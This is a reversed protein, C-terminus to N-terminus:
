ILLYGMRRAWRHCPTYICQYCFYFEMYGVLAMYSKSSHNLFLFYSNSHVTMHLMIYHTYRAQQDALHAGRAVASAPWGGRVGRRRWSWPGRDRLFSCSRCSSRPRTSPFLESDKGRVLSRYMMKGWAWRSRWTVNKWLSSPVHFKM